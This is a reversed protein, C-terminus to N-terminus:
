IMKQPANLKPHVDMKCVTDSAQPLDSDKWPEQAYKPGQPTVERAIAWNKPAHSALFFLPPNRMKIQM